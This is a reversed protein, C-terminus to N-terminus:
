HSIQKLTPKAKSGDLLPDSQDLGRGMLLKPALGQGEGALHLTQLVEVLPQALLSSSPQEAPTRGVHSHTLALPIGNQNTPAGGMKTPIKTTPNSHKSPTRAKSGHGCGLAQAM